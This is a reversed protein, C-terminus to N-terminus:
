SGSVCTVKAAWEDGGAKKRALYQDVEAQDAALQARAFELNAAEARDLLEVHRARIEKANRTKYKQLAASLDPVDSLDWPDAQKDIATGLDVDMLGSVFKSVM